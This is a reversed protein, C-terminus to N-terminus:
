HCIVPERNDSDCSVRNPVSRFRVGNGDDVEGHALLYPIHKCEHHASLGIRNGHFRGNVVLDV